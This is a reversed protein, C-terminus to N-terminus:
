YEEFDADSPDGVPIMAVARGATSPHGKRAAAKPEPLAAATEPRKLIQPGAELNWGEHTLADTRDGGAFTADGESIKFFGITSQLKAAQSSLENATAALEESSSANQQVVVDMQTVGKAIQDAGNSQEDSAAAIEQILEATKKIDPVLEELRKGADGAVLVSKASLDNIEAAAKASREALKRVESAVVAFGKGAEGARAAEIAANLALLNTQRAIEDIISIREAIEKMARVADV